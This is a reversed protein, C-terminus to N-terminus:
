SPDERQIEEIRRWALWCGLTLGAVILAGTWFIGAKFLRDLWRGLFVGVLTPTIVLWGLAGIMALNRALSREGHTLWFTRRAAREAVSQMLKTDTDPAPKATPPNM